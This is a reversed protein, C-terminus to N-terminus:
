RAVACLLRRLRSLFSSSSDDEKAPNPAAAGVLLIGTNYVCANSALVLTAFFIDTVCYYQYHGRLNQNIRKVIEEVPYHRHEKLWINLKVVDIWSISKPFSICCHRIFLHIILITICDFLSLM